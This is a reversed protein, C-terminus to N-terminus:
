GHAALHCVVSDFMIWVSLCGISTARWLPRLESCLPQSSTKAVSLPRASTEYHPTWVNSRPKVHSWVLLVKRWERGSTSLFCFMSASVLSRAAACSSAGALKWIPLIRSDKWILRALPHSKSLELKSALSLLRSASSQKTWALQVAMQASLSLENAVSSFKFFFVSM